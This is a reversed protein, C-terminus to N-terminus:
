MQLKSIIRSIISKELKINNTASNPDSVKTQRIKFPPTYSSTISQPLFCADCWSLWGEKSFHEDFLGVLEYGHSKMWLMTEYASCQEGYLPAFIMESVVIPQSQRLLKEAGQLVGLDSGQTDIKLLRVCDMINNDHTYQDLSILKREICKSATPTPGIPPLISGTAPDCGYGFKINGNSIGVAVEEVKINELCKNKNRLIVANEPNAEFMIAKTILGDKLYPMLFDGKYAGVDIGVTHNNGVSLGKVQGKLWEQFAEGYIDSHTVPSSFIRKTEIKMQYYKIIGKISQYGM